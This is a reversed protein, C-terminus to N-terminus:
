TASNVLVAIPHTGADVLNGDRRLFGIFGVQLFEAYREVLRLVTVDGAVERVKYASMDGFLISDANAAMVAMDNNIVYPHDLITPQAGNGFSATLAPQWLPRNATDKLKKLAKLTSDHFMYKGADRYSPDVTHELNVLDDYAVSTTGGTPVTYTLGAAVAATVIGNPENSGSGAGVTLKTNLIRGIRTGLQRATFANLDFYSDQLLALPIKVLKSSFIYANFLVQGFAIDQSSVATNQGIIEGVNSTDNVTPWPLVNGTGTQITSVTGAIGGFWKMAEVLQGEFGQPVLYGGQSGTTTSMTNHIRQQSGMFAKEEAELGEMGHRMYKAFIKSHRDSNQAAQEQPTTGFETIIRDRDVGRLDASITDVREARKISAEISTYETELRDFKEAEESTLGRNQESKALAVIAHMDVSLKALQERLQKAYNM